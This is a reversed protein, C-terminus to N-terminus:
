FAFGISQREEAKDSAHLYSFSLSLFDKTSICNSTEECSLARSIRCIKLGSLTRLLQRLASFLKSDAKHKRVCCRSMMLPRRDSPLTLFTNSLNTDDAPIVTTPPAIRGLVLGDLKM